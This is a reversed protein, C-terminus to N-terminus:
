DESAIEVHLGESLPQIVLTYGGDDRREVHLNLLTHGEEDDFDVKGYRLFQGPDQVDPPISTVWLHPEARAGTDYPSLSTDPSSRM